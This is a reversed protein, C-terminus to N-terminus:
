DIIVSAVRRAPPVLDLLVLLVGAFGSKFVVYHVWDAYSENDDAV